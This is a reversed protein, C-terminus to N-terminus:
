VLFTSRWYKKRNKSYKSIRAKSRAIAACTRRAPYGLLMASSNAREPHLVLGVMVHANQMGVAEGGGICCHMLDVCVGRSLAIDGHKANGPEHVKWPNKQAKFMELANHSQNLDGGWIVREGGHKQCFKCVQERALSGYPHNKSAPCHINWLEVPKAPNEDSSSLPVFSFRQAKRFVQHPCLPGVITPEDVIRVFDNAVLLGYHGMAYVSFGAPNRARVEKTDVVELLMDEVIHSDDDKAPSKSEKWTSLSCGLGINVEGLESLAIIDAKHKFIATVLDKRLAKLIWKNYLRETQLQSVQIGPNYFVTHVDPHIRLNQLAAKDTSSSSM